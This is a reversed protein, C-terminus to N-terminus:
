RDFRALAKALIPLFVFFVAIGFASQLCNLPLASVAAAFGYLICDTAFYGAINVVGGAISAIILPVVGGAGAEKGRWRNVLANRRVILGVALAILLKVAATFPAYAAFGAILDALLGGIAAAAMAYPLPLLAAAVYIFGDGFHIYGNPIPIKIIFTGLFIIAAFFAALVLKRVKASDM